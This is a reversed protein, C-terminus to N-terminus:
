PAAPRGAQRWDEVQRQEVQRGRAEQLCCNLSSQRGSPTCTVLRLGTLGVLTTNAPPLPPLTSRLAPLAAAATHTSRTMM